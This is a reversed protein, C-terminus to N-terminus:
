GLKRSALYGSNAELYDWTKPALKQISDTSEGIFKQTVLVYRNIIKTRNQAVDSGKVLPFLCTDEIDVVEGLGNVFV